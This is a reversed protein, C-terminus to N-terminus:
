NIMTLGGKLILMADGSVNTMPAKANLMATGEIKVMIGKITVGTQDITISNAGVKLTISQMAETTSKGLDIKLSHNGMKLQTSLNGMDITETVDGKEVKQIENQVIVRRFDKQAHLYIEEAGDKDEFRLENSKDAVGAAGWNAGRIGSQTKNGPVDFPPKNKGNYVMGVIIPHDPDGDLFEVVVESDIRPLYQSGMKNYAWVQAVRAWRSVGEEEWHFKVKARGMDDPTDTVRATQPGRIYPRPTVRPPRFDQNAPICVFTNGYSRGTEFPLDDSDRVHHEVRTIVYEGATQGSAPLDLIHDKIKLKEGVRMMPDRGEGDVWILGAEHEAIRAKAMRDGDGRTEHRGPYEYLKREPLGPPQLRTLGKVTADMGSVAKYDWATHGFSSAGVRYRPQWSEVDVPITLERARLYDAAGDGVIMACGPDAHDFHYFLGEDELLRSVFDFDSECYEVTYERQEGGSKIQAKVAGERLVKAIIDRAALDPFIRCRQNLTLFWAPPVLEVMHLHYNRITTQLVEFRSVVGHFKREAEHARVKVALKQGLIESPKLPRGASVLELRFRSLQSLEEVGDFAAVVIKAPGPAFAEVEILRDHKDLKVDELGSL